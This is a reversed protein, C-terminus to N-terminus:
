HHLQCCLWPQLIGHAQGGCYSHEAEGETIIWTMKREPGLVGDNFAPVRCRLTANFCCKQLTATNWPHHKLPNEIAPLHVTETKYNYIIKMHM